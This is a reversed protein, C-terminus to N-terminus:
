THPRPPPGTRVSPPETGREGFHNASMPLTRFGLPAPFGLQGDWAGNGIAYPPFDHKDTPDVTDCSLCCKDETLPELTPCSDPASNVCV